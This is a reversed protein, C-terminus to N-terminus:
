RRATTGDTYTPPQTPNCGLGKSALIDAIYANHYGGANLAVAFADVPCNTLATEVFAVERRRHVSHGRAKVIKRLREAEADAVQAPEQGIAEAVQDAQYKLNPHEVCTVTAEPRLFLVWRAFSVKFSAKRLAAFLEDDTTYDSRIQQSRQELSIGKYLKKVELEVQARVDGPFYDEVFVHRIIGRDILEVTAQVNDAITNNDNHKESLLVFVPSKGYRRDVINLALDAAVDRGFDRFCLKTM